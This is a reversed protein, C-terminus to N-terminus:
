YPQMGWVPPTYLLNRTGNNYIKTLPKYIIHPCLRSLDVQLLQITITLGQDVEVALRGLLNIKQEFDNQWRM